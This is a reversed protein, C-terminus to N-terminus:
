ETLDCNITEIIPLATLSGGGISYKLQGARELISAHLHFIDM